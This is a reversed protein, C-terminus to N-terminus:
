EARLAENPDVRVARWAPALSAGVALVLLLAVGVAYVGPELPEVGFLRSELFRTLQTAGVLGVGVGLATTRLGSGMVMALVQGARAGLAQRVGFERTREVVVHSLVGYLGVAALVVALAAFFASLTAVVRQESLTRDIRAPLTTVDYAPLGPDLERLASRVRPVVVATEGAARVLLSFRTVPFGQGFPEFLWPDPDDEVRQLRADRVVGVIEFPTDGRFRIGLMRGVANEGPFLEDALRESVVVMGPADEHGGYRDPFIRGAVLEMGLTEFFSRSVRNSRVSVAGDPDEGFPFVRAGAQHASYVNLWALGASGVAPDAQVRDLVERVFPVIAEEDYGQVGPDISFTVVGHPDLGMEVGHLEQVTRVLLGAGVVLMVSIAVQTSVLFTRLRGGGHGGRRGRRLTGSVAERSTIIGTLGGVLVGVVLTAVATFAFVARGVGVGTVETGWRVLRMGEFVDVLLVSAALGVLGGATALVLSEVLIERVIRGRGAGLARRVATDERRTSARALTLNATNAVALLLVFGAMGMLIGLTRSVRERFSPRLGIGAYVRFSRSELRASTEEELRPEIEQIGAQLDAPTATAARRAVIVHWIQARPNELYSESTHPVVDPARGLPVWLEAAGPLEAGHFGPPAVGVVTFSRGNVTLSAGVADRDGGLATRWLRHSVIVSAAGGPRSEDPLFTRGLAPEIGLVEFFDESVLEGPIRRPPANGATLHAEVSAYAAMDVLGTVAPARQRLGEFLAHSFYFFAGPNEDPELQIRTLRDPEQVGPVPRVLMWNALSFVSSNVGIGLALTVVAVAAFGPRRSLSRVAYRLDRVLGRM